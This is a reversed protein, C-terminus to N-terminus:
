YFEFVVIVDDNEMGEIYIVDKKEIFVDCLYYDLNMDFKDVLIFFESNVKDKVLDNFLFEVEYVYIKGLGCNVEMMEGFYDVFNRGIIFFFGFDESEYFNFGIKEKDFEKFLNVFGYYVFM